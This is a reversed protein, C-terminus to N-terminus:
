PGVGVGELGEGVGFDGLGGAGGQAPHGVPEGVMDVAAEVGRLVGIEREVVVAVVEGPRAGFGGGDEFGAFEFEGLGVVVDSRDAVHM